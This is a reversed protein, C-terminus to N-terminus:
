ECRCGPCCMWLMEFTAEHKVRGKLFGASSELSCCCCCCCREAGRGKIESVVQVLEYDSAMGCYLQHKEMARQIVAPAKDQSTLQFSLVATFQEAQGATWHSCRYCLGAQFLQRPARYFWPPDPHSRSTIHSAAWPRQALLRYHPKLELPCVGCWSLCPYSVAEARRPLRQSVHATTRVPRVLGAGSSGWGSDASVLEDATEQM